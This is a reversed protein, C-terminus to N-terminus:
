NREETEDHKKPRRKGASVPVKFGDLTRLEVRYSCQLCQQYWFDLDRDVFMDGGCRPCSRVKWRVM